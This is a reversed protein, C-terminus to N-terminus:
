CMTSAIDHVTFCWVFGHENVIFIRFLRGYLLSVDFDSPSSAKTMASIARRAVCTGEWVILTALAVVLGLIQTSGSAPPAPPVVSQKEVLTPSQAPLLVTPESAASVRQKKSPPPAAGYELAFQRAKREADGRPLYAYQAWLQDMQQRLRTGPDLVGIPLPICHGSNRVKTPGIAAWSGGTGANNALRDALANAQVSSHGKVWNLELHVELGFNNSHLEESATAIELMVRRYGAHWRFKHLPPPIGQQLRQLANLMSLCDSFVKVTVKRPRGSVPLLGMAGSLEAQALRISQLMAAAEMLISSDMSHDASPLQWAMGVQRGDDWQGPRFHRFVVAYSPSAEPDEPRFSGDCYLVLASPKAASARHSQWWTAEKISNKRSSAIFITGIFRQNGNGPVISSPASHGQSFHNPM